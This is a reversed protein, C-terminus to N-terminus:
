WRGDEVLRVDKANLSATDLISSPSAQKLRFNRPQIELGMGVKSVFRGHAPPKWEEQSCASARSIERELKEKARVRVVGLIEALESSPCKGRVDLRETAARL